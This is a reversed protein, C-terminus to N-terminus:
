AMTLEQLHAGGWSERTLVDHTRALAQLRSGIAVRAGQMDTTQLTQLVIAQVL